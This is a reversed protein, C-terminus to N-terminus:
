FGADPIWTREVVKHTPNRLEHLEVEDWSCCDFGCQENLCTWLNEM